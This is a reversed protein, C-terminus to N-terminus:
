IALVNSKFDYRYPHRYSQSSNSELSDRSTTPTLGEKGLIARCFDQKKQYNQASKTWLILFILTRFLAPRAQPSPGLTVSGLRPSQNKYVVLAPLHQGKATKLALPTYCDQARLVRIKICRQRGGLVPPTYFDTEWLGCKGATKQSFRRNEACTQPKRPKRRGAFALSATM